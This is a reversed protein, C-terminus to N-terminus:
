PEESFYTPLKRYRYHALHIIHPLETAHYTKFGLPNMNIVQGHIGIALLAGETEPMMWMQNRYHRDLMVDGYQGKAYQPRSNVSGKITDEIWTKPVIEEGELTGMGIMMMGFRALDRACANMGAGVYPVRSADVAIVADNRASLKKWLYDSLLAHLPAGM